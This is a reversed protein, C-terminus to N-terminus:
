VRYMNGDATNFKKMAKCDTNEMSFSFEILTTGEPSNYTSNYSHADPAGTEMSDLRTLSEDLELHDSIAM